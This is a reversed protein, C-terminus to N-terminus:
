ANVIALIGIADLFIHFSTFGNEEIFSETKKVTHPATSSDDLCKERQKRLARYITCRSTHLLSATKLINGKTSAYIQLIAQRAACPSIIRLERYELHIGTSM